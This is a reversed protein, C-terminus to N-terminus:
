VKIACRWSIDTRSQKQRRLPPVSESRAEALPVARALAGNRQQVPGGVGVFGNCDHVLDGDIGLFRARHVVIRLVGGPLLTLAERTKQSRLQRLDHVWRRSDALCNHGGQPTLIRVAERHQRRRLRRPVAPPGAAFEPAAARLM